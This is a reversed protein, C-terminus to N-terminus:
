DEEETKTWEKILQGPDHKLLEYQSVGRSQNDVKIVHENMLDKYLYRSVQKSTTVSYKTINLVVCGSGRVAICTAYSWAELLKGSESYIRKLNGNRVIKTKM